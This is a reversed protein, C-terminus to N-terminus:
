MVFSEAAKSMSSRFSKISLEGSGRIDRKSSMSNALLHLLWGLAPKKVDM